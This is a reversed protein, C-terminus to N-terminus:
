GNLLIIKNFSMIIIISIFTNVLKKIDGGTRAGADRITDLAQEPKDGFLTDIAQLGTGTFFDM